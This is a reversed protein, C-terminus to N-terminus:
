GSSQQGLTLMQLVFLVLTVQYNMSPPIIITPAVICMFSMYTYLVANSIHMYAYICVYICVMCVILEFYGAM